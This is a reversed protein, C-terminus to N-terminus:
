STLKSVCFDNFDTENVSIYKEDLYNQILKNNKLDITIIGDKLIVNNIETWLIKEPIASPYIVKDNYFLVTLKKRSITDLVAFLLNIYGLWDYPSVFWAFSFFFFPWFFLLKENSKKFYKLLFIATAALLSLIFPGIKNFDAAITLVILTIFNSFLLICSIIFYTKEKDNKLEIEYKYM